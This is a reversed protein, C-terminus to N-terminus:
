TKYGIRKRNKFDQEEQNTQQLQKLLNFILLIQEDHEMDKRKLEEIQNILEQYNELIKRLKIFVRIININIMIANRSRLVSSLMAVGQETFAMPVYRTGGWSSTVSHSRLNQFEDQTLEFMFDSPFREINRRVAQKLQKTTVAYLEALDKDLIVKQDRIFHIKSM